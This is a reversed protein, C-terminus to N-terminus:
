PSQSKSRDGLKRKTEEKLVKRLNKEFFQKIEKVGM